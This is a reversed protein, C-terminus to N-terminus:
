AAAFTPRDSQVKLFEALWLGAGHAEQIMIAALLPRSRNWASADRLRQVLLM